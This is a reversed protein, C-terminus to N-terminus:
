KDNKLDEWKKGTIKEIKNIAKKNWLLFQNNAEHIRCETIILELLEDEYNEIPHNPIYKKEECETTTVFFALNVVCTKMIKKLIICDYFLKCSGCCKSAILKM